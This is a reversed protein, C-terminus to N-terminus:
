ENIKEERVFQMSIIDSTLLLLKNGDDIVDYRNITKLVSLFAQEDVGECFMRTSIFKETNFHIIENETSYKGAINNCGNNGAVKGADVFTLYPKQIKYLQKVDKGNVPSMYELIWKGKLREDFKSSENETSPETITQQTKCSMILLAIAFIIYNLKM